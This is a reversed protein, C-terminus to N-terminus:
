ASGLRCVFWLFRPQSRASARRCADNATTGRTERTEVGRSCLCLTCPVLRPLDVMEHEIQQGAECLGAVVRRRDRATSVLRTNGPFPREQVTGKEPSFERWDARKQALGGFFGSFVALFTSSFPASHRNKSPMSRWKAARPASTALDSGALRGSSVDKATQSRVWGGARPIPSRAGNEQGSHDAIIRVGAWIFM